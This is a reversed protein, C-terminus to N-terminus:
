KSNRIMKKTAPNIALIGALIFIIGLYLNWQLHEHLFFAGFIMALVPVLLVCLSAYTAGALKIAKYYFFYATATGFIGLGAAGVFAKYSPLPLNFPRDIALSFPLVIFAALILQSTSAVISPIKHLHRVAYVTGIGYCLCAAVVLLAGLANQINEHFLLPIFIILLGALGAGIGIIKNKTLPDDLGFYHALIATFIVTLSNLIGTLSSPIYLEAHNILFFPIANLFLGMVVFHFWLRRHAWIKQKQFRCIGYLIIAGISVRLFVLTLPPIENVALKIFLYSPGWCLATIFLFLLSQGKITM